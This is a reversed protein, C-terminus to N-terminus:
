TIFDIPGKGERIIELEDETCDIVTSAEIGGPGGNIVIDVHKEYKEYILEPNV